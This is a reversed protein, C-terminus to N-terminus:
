EEDASSASSSSEEDVTSSQSTEEDQTATAPPPSSDDPMGTVLNVPVDDDMNITNNARGDDHCAAVALAAGVILILARM